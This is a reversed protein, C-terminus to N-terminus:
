RIAAYYFKLCQNWIVQTTKFKHVKPLKGNRDLQLFLYEDGVEFGNVTLLYKYFAGQLEWYDLVATASTKFDILFKQGSDPCQAVADAQGTIKLEECYLRRESEVLRFGTLQQWALFSNFYGTVRGGLVPCLGLHNMEIAKHVATGIDAKRELVGKEIGDFNSLSKLIQSVRLYGDRIDASDEIVLKM